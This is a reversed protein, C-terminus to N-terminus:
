LFLPLYIHRRILNKSFKFQDVKLNEFVTARYFGSRYSRESELSPLDNPILEVISKNSLVEKLVEM